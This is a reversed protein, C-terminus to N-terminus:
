ATNKSDRERLWEILMQEFPKDYSQLVHRV